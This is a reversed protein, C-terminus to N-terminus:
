PHVAALPTGATLFAGPETLGTITGASPALIPTEMKMAEMTGLTQ